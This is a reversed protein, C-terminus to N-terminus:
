PFSFHNNAPNSTVLHNGPQIFGGCAAQTINEGPGLIRRDVVIVDGFVLITLLNHNPCKKWYGSPTVPALISTLMEIAMLLCLWNKRNARREGVTYYRFYDVTWKAKTLGPVTPLIGRDLYEYHIQSEPMTPFCYCRDGFSQFTDMGRNSFAVRDPCFHYM